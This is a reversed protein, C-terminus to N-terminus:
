AAHASAAESSVMDKIRCLGSTRMISAEYVQMNFAFDRLTRSRRRAPNEM